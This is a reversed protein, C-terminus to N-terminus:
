DEELDINPNSNLVNTTVSDKPKGLTKNRTMEIKINNNPLNPLINMSNENYAYTGLFGKNTDM